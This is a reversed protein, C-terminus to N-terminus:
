SGYALSRQKQVAVLRNQIKDALANIDMGQSAYVNITIDGGQGAGVLERLKNMGLVVEGGNGDGFGKAGYPTQLVTPSTFMIPNNYAKRYWAISFHPASPPNLSFHGSISIHPLPIHPLSWTFNFIQKMRDVVSQIAARAAEFKSQLTAKVSEGLSSAASVMSSLRSQVTTLMSSFRGNTLSDMAQLKADWTQRVAEMTAAAIGRLGQGNVNYATKIADLRTQVNAKTEDLKTTVTNKINTFAESVKKKIEDVKTTVVTKTKNWTETVSKHAEEGFKKVNQKLNKWADSVAKQIEKAKAKIKDWNKYLLVGAGILVGIVAVAIGFPGALAAITGGLAPAFTMLMGIGTILKGGVILLPAIAAVTLGIGMVLTLQEPTLKSLWVTLKELGAALNNVIPVLGEAVKAGLGLAAGSLRSKMLDLSDNIRNLADLTDQSLILGLREADDGYKRLAEGGDDIIGALEDASRGFLEMAIKDREAENPIKSMAAIADYFVDTTNRLHGSADTVSVGLAQFTANGEDMKPKMRRLAGTIRDISVDVLDSAYQMKQLEQTSIGTQAALTNLDDAATVAKYGLGVLGSVVAGAAASIPAFAQGAATVKGGFEKMQEGAAKIQQASVSGFNKYEDQLSKLNQETAIIERQLADWEATGEKVQSQAAKLQTLRDKTQSIAQELAKQKQTLLETNGPDLKLLKNVDKLTNQTTRLQNDVGKLATQLKTTNGGIEITIGAIRGAM